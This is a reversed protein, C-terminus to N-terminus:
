CQNSLEGEVESDAANAIPMNLVIEIIKKSVFNTSFWATTLCM